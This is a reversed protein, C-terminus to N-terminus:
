GRRLKEFAELTGRAMAEATFQERAAKAGRAGLARAREPELLLQEIAESLAQPNEPEVLIGGDSAEVLEPFAATRPLVVPVGAALAEVVYLGFAEGYRAPVSFVSLSKLFAIKEERPLNPCFEVEGLLSNRQLKERLTAVFREDAPGCSGGVRLRAPAKGRQRLLVFADVLTDLGKEPCMRAFYGVVPTQNPSSESATRDYGQLSIGNHIVSIRARDIGLRRSMLQAFYHSPTIFQEIDKAREAVTRWCTERHSDPLANLFSDEGQLICVLPAELEQKLRRAMGILLANSLCVVDPPPQTKLWAVLDALERAQNGSEGRLMSLTLEGLDSARTKAARTGAWKLLPRWSLAQHVWGPAKRFFAFQQDLYVNIGGFFIPANASQDPEDLTLPLYLPLMLVQHGMGRLAAVVSNDRLCNGCYMAGAGPTIQVIHM